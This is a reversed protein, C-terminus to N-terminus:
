KTNIKSKKIHYGLQFCGPAFVRGVACGLIIGSPCNKMAARLSKWMKKSRRLGKPCDPVNSVMYLSEKPILRSLSGQPLVLTEIALDWVAALASSRFTSSKFVCTQAIKKLIQAFNTIKFMFCSFFLCKKHHHCM